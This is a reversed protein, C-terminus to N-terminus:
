AVKEEQTPAEDAPAQTDKPPDVVKILQSLREAERTADWDLRVSRWFLQTCRAIVSVLLVGWAMVGTWRLSNDFIVFSPATVVGGIFLGIALGTVRRFGERAYYAARAPAMGTKFRPAEEDEPAHWDETATDPLRRMQDFM